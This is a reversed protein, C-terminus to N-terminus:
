PTWRTADEYQDKWRPDQPHWQHYFGPVRERAVPYHQSLQALMNDDEGGWKEKEQYRCGHKEFAEKPFQVPGVGTERWWGTKHFHDRFSFCIALFVHGRELWRRGRRLYEPSVLFDTGLIAIYDGHAADIAANWGRGRSFPGEMPLIRVPYGAGRELWSHLPLDDSDFDAVVLEVEEGISAAAENLSKVMRPFLPLHVVVTTEGEPVTAKCLSRNKNVVCVSIM